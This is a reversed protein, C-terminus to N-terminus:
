LDLKGTRGTVGSAEAREKLAQNMEKYGEEIADLGAFPVFIGEFTEQQVLLTTGNRREELLFVHEGFFLGKIGGGWTLETEPEVRMVKPHITLEKGNPKHIEVLLKEGPALEGEVKVHYPNWNPYNENDALIAWVEKPSAEIPMETYIHKGCASTLAALLVVFSLFVLNHTHKHTNM